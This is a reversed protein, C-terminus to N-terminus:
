LGIEKQPNKPDKFQYKLLHFEPEIKDGNQHTYLHPANPVYYWQEPHIADRLVTYSDNGVTLSEIIDESALSAQCIVHPPVLLAITISAVAFTLVSVGRRYRATM